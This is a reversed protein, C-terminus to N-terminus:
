RGIQRDGVSVNDIQKPNLVLPLALGHEGTDTLVGAKKTQVFRAQGLGFRVDQDHVWAGDVTPDLNVAFDGVALAGDNELLDRITQGHPHSRKEQDIAALARLFYGASGASKRSSASVGGPCRAAM